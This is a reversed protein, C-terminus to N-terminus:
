FPQCKYLISLKVVKAITKGNMGEAESLDMIDMADKIAQLSFRLQEPTQILGMRMARM